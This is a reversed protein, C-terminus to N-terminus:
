INRIKIDKLAIDCLLVTNRDKILENVLLVM